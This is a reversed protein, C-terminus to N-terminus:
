INIWVPSQQLRLAALQIFVQSLVMTLHLSDILLVALLFIDLLLLVLLCRIRIPPTDSLLVAQPVAVKKVLTAFTSM